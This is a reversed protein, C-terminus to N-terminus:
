PYYSRLDLLERTEPLVVGSADREKQLARWEKDAALESWAAEAQERTEFEGLEACVQGMRRGWVQFVRTPAIGHKEFLAQAKERYAQDDAERGPTIVEMTVYRFMTIEGKKGARNRM